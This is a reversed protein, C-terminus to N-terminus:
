RSLDYSSGTALSLVRWSLGALPVSIRCLGPLTEDHGVLQTKCYGPPAKGSPTYYLDCVSLPSRGMHPTGYPAPIGQTRCKPSVRATTPPQISTDQCTLCLRCHM